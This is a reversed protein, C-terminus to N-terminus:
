AKEMHRNAFVINKLGCRYLRSPTFRPPYTGISTQLVHTCRVLERLRTGGDQSTVEAGSFGLKRLCRQLDFSSDISPSRKSAPPSYAHNSSRSMLNEVCTRSSAAATKTRAFGRQCPTERKFEFMRQRLDPHAVRYSPATEKSRSSALRLVLCRRRGEVEKGKGGDMWRMSLIGAIASADTYASIEFPRCGQKHESERLHLNCPTRLVSSVFCRTRM